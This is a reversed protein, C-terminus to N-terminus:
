KLRGEITFCKREHAALWGQGVDGYTVRRERRYAHIISPWKVVIAGHSYCRGHKWVVVDGPKAPAQIEDMRAAVNSLFVEESRHLMWDPAYEGLDFDEVLGVAVYCARLLHACDVGAGLIEANHHFPTLLWKRAEEVLAIRWTPLAEESM